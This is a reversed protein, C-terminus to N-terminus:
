NLSNDKKRMIFLALYLSFLTCNLIHDTMRHVQRVLGTKKKGVHQDTMPTLIYLILSLHEEPTRAWGSTPCPPPSYKQNHINVTKQLQLLNVAHYNVRKNEVETLTYKFDM